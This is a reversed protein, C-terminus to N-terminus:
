MVVVRATQGELTCKKTTHERSAHYQESLHGREETGWPFSQMAEQPKYAM